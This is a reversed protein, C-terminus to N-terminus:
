FFFNIFTDLDKGLVTERKCVPVFPKLKEGLHNVFIDCQLYSVIKSYVPGFVIHLYMLLQPGIHWINGSSM